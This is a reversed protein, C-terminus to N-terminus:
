ATGRVLVEQAGGPESGAGQQAGQGFGGSCEQLRVMSGKPCTRMVWFHQEEVDEQSVIEM